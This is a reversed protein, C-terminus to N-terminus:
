NSVNITVKTKKDGRLTTVEIQNADRLSQLTSIAQPASILEIGNIESIVDGDVFGSKEYISDERIRTLRFGKLKGDVMNPEAKADQLVKAFDSTLTKRRYEASMKIAGAKREFGPEAFSDANGRNAMSDTAGAGPRGLLRRDTRQFEDKKVDLYEYRSGDRLIYVKERWVHSLVAREGPVLDDGVMFTDIEKKTNEVMAVGSKPDGGFITGVIILNLDSKPVQPKDKADTSNASDDAAAGELNFLNRKLIQDTDQDSLSFNTPSKVLNSNPLVQNSFSLSKPTFYGSLLINAITAVIFSMGAIGILVPTSFKESARKVLKGIKELYMVIIPNM